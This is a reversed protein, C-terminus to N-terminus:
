PSKLYKVNNLPTYPTYRIQRALKRVDEAAVLDRARAAALEAALADHAERLRAAQAEGRARCTAEVELRSELEQVGCM